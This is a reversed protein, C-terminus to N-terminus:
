KWNELYDSVTKVTSYSPDADTNMLRYLTNYHIGISEAVAKLNSHKLRERIQEVTLMKSIEEKKSQITSMM